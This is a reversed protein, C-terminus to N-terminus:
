PTNRFFTRCLAHSVRAVAEAGRHAPTWVTDPCGQSYICVALADEGRRIIGADNRVGVVAGPKHAVTFAAAGARVDSAYFNVDLYRPLMEADHVMALYREVATSIAADTLTRRAVSAMFHCMDAPTGTATHPPDDPMLRFKIPRHIRTDPMGWDERLRRNVADPGGAARLCLNSATNDSLKIALVALDALSLTLGPALHALVGSGGVQDEAGVVIGREKAAAEPDPLDALSSLLAALIPAKIVSATPFEIDSGYDFREGTGLFVAAVGLVGGDLTKEIARVADVLETGGM